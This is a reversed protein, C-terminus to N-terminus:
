AQGYFISWLFIEHFPIIILNYINSHDIWVDHTSPKEIKKKKKPFLHYHNHNLNQYQLPLTIEEHYGSLNEVLDIVIVGNGQLKAM